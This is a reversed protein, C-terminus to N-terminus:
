SIACQRTSQETDLDRHWPEMEKVFADADQLDDRVHVSLCDVSLDSCAREVQDIYHQNDDLFLVRRTTTRYTLFYRALREKDMKASGGSRTNGSDSLHANVLKQQQELIDRFTMPVTMTPDEPHLTAVMDDANLRVPEDSGGISQAEKSLLLRECPEIICRYYSGPGHGFAPDIVTVVGLIRLRPHAQEIWDLLECRLVGMSHSAGNADYATFFYVARLDVDGVKELADFLPYNFNYGRRLPPLALNATAAACSGPEGTESTGDVDIWVTRGIEDRTIPREEEDASREDTGHRRSGEPM